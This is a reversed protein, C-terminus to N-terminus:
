VKQSLFFMDFAQEMTNHKGVVDRDLKRSFETWKDHCDAIINIWKLWVIRLLTLSINM